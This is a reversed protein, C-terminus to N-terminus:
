AAEDSLRNAFDIIEDIENPTFLNDATGLRSLPPQLLHERSLRRRRLVSARVARLFNIQSASMFGHEAIFRDFALRIAEDQSPLRAIRLIHRMFDPLSASPQRYVERLTDETVFLDAQNLASAIQDIDDDSLVGGRKLLMLAPLRGALTRVRAEVKERYSDAFAGEGSPGYIIWHRHGIRDPLNLAVPRVQERQRFRMLPAFNEQLMDLRDLDLRAWFGESLVWARQEAVAKVEDINDALGAVADRAKAAYADVEARDGSLWALAIRECTIRFQLEPLSGTWVYRMLPAITQSLYQEKAPTPAPWQRTLKAISAQHPRVNINDVPIRAIMAQLVKTTRRDSLDSDQLLAQKRLLLRFLRVPLPETPRETEGEPNLQFYEFNNWCDIVLFDKKRDGTRPDEYLRTGRGIMQWFKVRSFVPKAFMLSQIAPVDIGTDLMDVAIAIRPMDKFKFDDLTDEAREMHSDIIEALGRRKYDPFLKNFSQYLRKAHDHSIAFIISKAPLGLVDKRCVRMLERILADTTGVNTVTKEIDTGEFDLEELDIGQERLQQQLSAPLTEGHIGSIQFSTQANLVRYSALYGEAVAQEYSYNFTPVGDECGFLDFTNHDIFDTPTATLGLQLADFHDFLSKYRNYISRHSEDAVILDYYGPSLSSYSRMMSPYTAVHIRAGSPIDGGEIRGLSEHPLHEKISTMAQRVLERRDALFLVRQARRARFLVDMLSIATRTKGTGTAMVLLFRRRAADIAETLRRIAESQYPRGAIAPNLQVQALATAYRRQHLLRELDERAFFGSVPRPPYRDRDWFLIEQGNALFVFPDIGFKKAIQDAYDAAQRKGALPDRSTRKAEVLALPKHHAGVLVYDVFGRYHSRTRSGDERPGLAFEQLVSRQDRGWGAEALQADIYRQRTQAETLTM